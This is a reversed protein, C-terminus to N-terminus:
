LPGDNAWTGLALPPGVHCTMHIVQLPPVAISFYMIERLYQSVGLLESYKYLLAELSAIEKQQEMEQLSSKSKAFLSADLAGLPVGKTMFLRKAREELTRIFDKM